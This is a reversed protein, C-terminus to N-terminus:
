DSIAIYAWNTASNTSRYCRIDFGTSSVNDVVGRITVTGPDVTSVPFCVVRPTAPTADTFTVTVTTTGGGAGPAATQATGWRMNGATLSDGVTLDDSVDVREASMLISTDWAAAGPGSGFLDISSQFGKTTDAPSILELGPRSGAGVTTKVFGPAYDAGVTDPPQFEQRATLDSSIRIHTGTTPDYVTVGALYANGFPDNGPDAAISAILNGAAPAGDYYFSDGGITVGGRIIVDNFEASGDINISWGSVGTVFDPSRLAPRVLVIGGALEDQFQLGM